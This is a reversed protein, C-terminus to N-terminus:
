EIPDFNENKEKRNKAKKLLNYYRKTKYKEMYKKHLTNKCKKFIKKDKKGLTKRNKFIIDRMLADPNKELLAKFEASISEKLVCEKIKNSLEKEKEKRKPEYDQETSGPYPCAVLTFLFLFLLLERM